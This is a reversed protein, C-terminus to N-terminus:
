TTPGVEARAVPRLDDRAARLVAHAPHEAGADARARGRSGSRDAAPRLHAGSADGVLNRANGPDISKPGRCDSEPTKKM